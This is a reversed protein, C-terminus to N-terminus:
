KPRQVKTKSIKRSKSSQDKTKSLGGTKFILFSALIFGVVYVVSGLNTVLTGLLFLASIVLLIWPLFPYGWV